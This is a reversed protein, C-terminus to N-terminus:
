RVHGSGPPCARVPRHGGDTSISRVYRASRVPSARAPQAPIFLAALIAGAAAGGDAVLPASPSGPLFANSAALRLSQGLVPQGLGAM